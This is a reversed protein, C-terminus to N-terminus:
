PQSFLDQTVPVRPCTWVKVCEVECSSSRTWWLIQTVPHSFGASQFSQLQDVQLSSSLSVRRVKIIRRLLLLPAPQPPLVQQMFGEGGKPLEAIM